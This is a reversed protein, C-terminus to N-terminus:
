RRTIFNPHCSKFFRCEDENCLAAAPERMNCHFVHELPKERTGYIRMAFPIGLSELRDAMAMVHKRCMDGLATMLFVPPFNANVYPLVEIKKMKEQTVEGLMDQHLENDEKVGLTPSDFSYVGCNLAIATFRFTEPVAFKYNAAYERNTNICTYLGLLHAGASDGVAYVANMDLGYFEQNEYMWEVVRNTDELPAPFKVEPALRYTFNVVAFGQQALSMCYFQYVEKDGYVWGGGHVNLIVPLKGKAEKPRYVDLLNMKADEGYQINDFRKIDVPTELGADREADGSGFERRLKESTASM